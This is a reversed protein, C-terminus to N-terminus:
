CTLYNTLAPWWLYCQSCTHPFGFWLKRAHTSVKGVKAAELVANELVFIVGQSTSAIAQEEEDLAPAELGKVM